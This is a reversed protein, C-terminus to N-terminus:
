HQIPLRVVEVSCRAHRAVAESVSGLMFRDLAKRGHSGLVILDAHWEAAFDIIASKPDGERVTSTVKFGASRLAQEAGTVLAQAAKREDELIADLMSTHTPAMANTFYFPVLNLVHLVLVETSEPRIQSIVAQTAAESFKSDDIALLVRM